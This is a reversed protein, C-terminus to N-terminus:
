VIEVQPFREKFQKLTAKSIQTCHSIDLRELSTAHSAIAYLWRDTVQTCGFLDLSKIKEAGQLLAIFGALTVKSCEAMSFEELYPMGSAVAAIGKDTITNCWDLHLTSINNCRSAVAVLGNDTIQELHLLSLARLGQGHRSIAHLTEDTLRPCLSLELDVLCPLQPLLQVFCADTLLRAQPIHLSVIDRHRLCCDILEDNCMTLSDNASIRLENQVLWGRGLASDQGLQVKALEAVIDSVMDEIFAVRKTKKQGGHQIPRTVRGRKKDESEPELEYSQSTIQM